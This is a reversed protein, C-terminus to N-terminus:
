CGRCINKLKAATRAEEAAFPDKYPPRGADTEVVPRKGIESSVGRLQLGPARDHKRHRSLRARQRHRKARMYLSGFGRYYNADFKRQARCRKGHSCLRSEPLCES